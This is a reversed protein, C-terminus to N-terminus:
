AAEDELFADAIGFWDVCDLAYGLLDSYVSAQDFVSEGEGDRVKSKLCDALVVRPVDYGKALRVYYLCDDHSGEDNTLWLHVAWTPYNTWGNYGQEAM